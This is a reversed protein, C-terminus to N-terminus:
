PEVDMGLVCADSPLRENDPLVETRTPNGLTVRIVRGEPWTAYEGPRGDLQYPMMVDQSDCLRAGCVTCRQIIRGCVDMRPGVFHTITEPM